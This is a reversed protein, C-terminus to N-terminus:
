VLLIDTAGSFIFIGAIIELKSFAEVVMAAEGMSIFKWGLSEPEIKLNIKKNKIM